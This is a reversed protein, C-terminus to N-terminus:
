LIHGSRIASDAEVALSVGYDFHSCPAEEDAPGVFTVDVGDPEATIYAVEGFPTIEGGRLDDVAITPQATNTM